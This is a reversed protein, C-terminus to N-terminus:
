LLDWNFSGAELLISAPNKNKTQELYIIRPLKASHFLKKKHKDRQYRKYTTCLFAINTVPHDIKTIFLDITVPIPMMFY